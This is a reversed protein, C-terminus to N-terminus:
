YFDQFIDWDQDQELWFPIDYGSFPDLADFNTLNYEEGRVQDGIFANDVSTTDIGFATNPASQREPSTSGRLKNPIQEIPQEIGLLSYEANDNVRPIDQFASEADQVVMLDLDAPDRRNQRASNSKGGNRQNALTGDRSKVMRARLDRIATASAEPWVSGRRALHQLVYLSRDTLRIVTEHSLENHNAAYFLIFTSIWVAWTCSPWLLVLSPNQDKAKLADHLNTVISRASGVCLQLAADYEVGECSAALIPRNLSIISEHKLLTLILSCYTAMEQANDGDYFDEIDNWWQTLKANISTAQDPDRHVYHLSKNRLEIIEGRLRSERAVFSLMKLKDDQLRTQSGEAHREMNPFCVDIDDDNLGLPLGMSQCIFRDIAYLSWFIRRRIAKESTSFTTYRAPCRHMGLQLAMRSILGGLRSAANLRLMSVLFLQVSIAAQLGLVSTPRTLVGHLSDVAADYSLFILDSPYCLKMPNGAQRQDALSISMISRLITMQLQVTTSLDQWPGISLENFFDLVTPAHLFPYLLHWNAFYSASLEALQAFPYLSLSRTVIEKHTWLDRSAQPLVSPLQDDEGPVIDSVPTDAVHIESGRRRLAGYVSRIFYIGSASGVFGSSHDGRVNRMLGVERHPRTTNCRRKSPREDAHVNAESEHLQVHCEGSSDSQMNSNWTKTPCIDSRSM